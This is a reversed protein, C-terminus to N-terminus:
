VYKKLWEIALAEDEFFRTPRVPKNFQLFFRVMLRQPLSHIVFADAVVLESRSETAVYERVEKSPIVFKTTTYLIPMKRNAALETRAKVISASHEITFEDEIKIHIHLFGEERIRITAAPIDIEQETTKKM